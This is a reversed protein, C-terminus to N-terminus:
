GGANSPCLWLNDDIYQKLAALSWFEGAQPCGNIFYRVDCSYYRVGRYSGTKTM